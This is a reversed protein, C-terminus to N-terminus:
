RGVALAVVLFVAMCCGAAIPLTWSDHKSEGTMSDWLAQLRGLLLALWCLPVLYGPTQVRRMLRHRVLEVSQQRIIANAATLDDRTRQHDDRERQLATRLRVAETWYLHHDTLPIPQTRPDIATM